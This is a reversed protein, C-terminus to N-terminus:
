QQARAQPNPRCLTLLHRRAPWSVLRNKACIAIWWNLWHWSDTLPHIRSKRNSAIVRIPVFEVVHGAAIFALLMESEIQFRRTQLSLQSWSALHVLRFGCQSDALTQGALKSLRRSMWRNVQRRLWPIQVADGMRNGVVLAAGTQEARDIFLPIEEPSHQGDGDLTLAWEYGADFAAKLGRQLAAGKGQNSDCGIVRAGAHLAENATNDTSGDDVVFVTPLRMCVARVLSAITCGENLCPIVACIKNPGVRNIKSTNKPRVVKLRIKSQSGRKM